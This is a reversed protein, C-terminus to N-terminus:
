NKWLSCITGVTTKVNSQECVLCKQPWISVTYKISIETKIRLTLLFIIHSPHTFNLLIFVASAVKLDDFYLKHVWHTLSHNNNLVLEAIKWSYRPFFLNIKLSIIIITNYRYWSFRLYLENETTLTPKSPTIM